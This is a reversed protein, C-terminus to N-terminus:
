DDQYENAKYFVDDESDEQKSAVHSGQRRSTSPSPPPQEVQDESTQYIDEDTAVQETDGSVSAVTVTSGEESREKKAFVPSEEPKGEILGSLGHNGRLLASRDGHSQPGEDHAIPAVRTLGFEGPKDRKFFDPHEWPWPGKSGSKESDSDEHILRYTEKNVETTEVPFITPEDLIDGKRAGPYIMM